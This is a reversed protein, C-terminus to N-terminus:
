LSHHRTSDVPRLSDRRVKLMESMVGSFQDRSYSDKMRAAFLVFDLLGILGDGDGDLAEM